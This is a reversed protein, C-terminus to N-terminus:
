RGLTRVHEVGGPELPRTQLWRGEFYLMVPGGTLLEGRYMVTVQQEDAAEHPVRSGTEDIVAHAGGIVVYREWLGVGNRDVGSRVECLVAETKYTHRSTGVAWRLLIIGQGTSLLAGCLFVGGVYKEIIGQQLLVVTISCGIGMVSTVCWRRKEWYWLLYWPTVRPPKSQSRWALGALTAGWLILNAVASYLVIAALRSTEPAITATDAFFTSSGSM